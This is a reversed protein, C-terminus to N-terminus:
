HVTFVPHHGKSRRQRPTASANSVMTEGFPDPVRLIFKVFALKDLVFM